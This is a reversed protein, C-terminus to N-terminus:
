GRLYRGLWDLIVDFRMVRHVPSGSRSLEHSEETFRVLEVEDTDTRSRQTRNSSHGRISM